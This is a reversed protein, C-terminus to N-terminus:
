EKNLIEEYLNIYEKFRDRKDFYKIARERCKYRYHEKGKDVIINIAKVVGEIDGQEVIFGTESDIAEPCGGTKYTIVPTGCALAEINTTPFNDEFTPNFFITSYSYIKVLEEVNNTRSLGIIGNPLNKIQKKNLGILIIRYDMPLVDRLRIFEELGKRKEWINAVGLITISDDSIAMPYFVDLDIGNHIVKIKFKKMFSQHVENALWHSVPVIMINDAKTFSEKKKSYNNKTNDFFARPYSLLQPCKSCEIKWKSCNIFSYYACHGTYPWCDHLTWVVPTSSSHIYNFLLQYNLYYGHINHLHIVDPNIIKIRNILRKTSLYSHLGHRDFLISCIFHFYNYIKNGIKLSISKGPNNYRGYAIYSEWGNEIIKLGIEEAIRGTSGWNNTSNIQLIKM